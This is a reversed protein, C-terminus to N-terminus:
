AARKTVKVVKVGLVAEPPASPSRQVSDGDAIAAAILVEEAFSLRELEAELETIRTAREKIPIVGSTEREIQDLLRKEMADPFLFAMLALPDARDERPGSSGFGAGPWVIHLKEKAGIGSIQPRAMSQVYARVRQEIDASSTPIGRLSKLETQTAEIKTRVSALDGYGSVDTTVPELVANAPLTDLWQRCRSYIANANDCKRKLVPLDDTMQKLSARLDDYESQKMGGTLRQRASAIGEETRILQESLREAQDSLSILKELVFAPTNTRNKM